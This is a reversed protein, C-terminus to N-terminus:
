GNANEDNRSRQRLAGKHLDHQARRQEELLSNATGAKLMKARQRKRRAIPHLDVSNQWSTSTSQDSNSSYPSLRPSKPQQQIREKPQQEDFVAM